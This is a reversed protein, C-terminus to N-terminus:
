PVVQTVISSNFTSYSNNKSFYTLVGIRYNGSPLFPFTVTNEGYPIEYRIYNANGAVAEGFNFLGGDTRIFAVFKDYVGKTPDLWNISISSTSNDFSSSSIGPFDESGPPEVTVRKCKVVESERKVEVAGGNWVYPLLSFCYQEISQSDIGSVRIEDDALYDFSAISFISNNSVSPHNLYTDSTPPGTDRQKIEVILGDMVGSNLDIPTFELFVEDLAWFNKPNLIDEVGAFNAIGPETKYPGSSEYELYENTRCTSTMCALFHVDHETYAELESIVTTTDEFDVKKCYYATDGSDQGDCIEDFSNKYSSWPQGEATKKYYARYHDIAGTAANWTLNLSSLGESGKPITVKFDSLDVDVASLEDSLTEAILYKSNEEKRYNPDAGFQTYGYHVARVRVFYKTAPQLGNVQHSINKGDVLSVIRTPPGFSADDFAVPTASEANLLVVEYQVPDIEKFVFSSGQKEAAPWEIILANRGDAGPLNRVNSIGDFNATINAFTTASATLDNTSKTGETNKAQVNFSYSQDSSLGDVTYTLLGRYDTRLTSGPVTVPNTAGDYSIIYTVDNPSGSAPFFSVDVKNNAIPAAKYIGDFRFVSSGVNVGKTTEPNKDEVKGVCSILLIFLTYKLYKSLM